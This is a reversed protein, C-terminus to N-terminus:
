HHTASMTPADSLDVRGSRQAADDETHDGAHDGADDGAHHRGLSLRTRREMRRRELPGHHDHGLLHLVGHVVLLALEDSFRRGADAAQRKAVQPCVVVDGVLLPGGAGRPRRETSRGMWRGAPVPDSRFALVDTAHDYNLWRRTLEAMAETDLFTLSLEADCDVGEDRATAAALRGWRRLELREGGMGSRDAADVAVSGVEVRLLDPPGEPADPNM